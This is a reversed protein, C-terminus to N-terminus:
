QIYNFHVSYVIRVQLYLCLIKFINMLEFTLNYCYQNVYMWNPLDHTCSLPVCVFMWLSLFVIIYGVRYNGLNLRHLQLVVAPRCWGQVQCSSYPWLRISHCSHLVCPERLLQCNSPTWQLQRWQWDVLLTGALSGLM